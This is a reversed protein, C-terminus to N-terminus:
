QQIQQRWLECLKEISACASKMNNSDALIELAQELAQLEDKSIIVCHGVGDPLTVEVRAHDQAVKRYAEGLPGEAPAVLRNDTGDVM